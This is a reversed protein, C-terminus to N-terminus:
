NLFDIENQLLNKSQLSRYLTERCIKLAIWEALLSIDKGFPFLTQWSKTCDPLGLGLFITLHYFGYRSMWCDSKLMIPSQLIKSDEVQRTFKLAIPGALRSVDDGSSSLMQWVQQQEPQVLCRNRHMTQPWGVESQLDSPPMPFNHEDKELGGIKTCMWHASRICARNSSQSNRPVKQSETIGRLWHKQNIKSNITSSACLEQSLYSDISSPSGSAGKHCGTIAEEMRAVNPTQVEEPSMNSGSPKITTNSQVITLQNINQTPIKHTHSHVQAKQWQLKNRCVAM